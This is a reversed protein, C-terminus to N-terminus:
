RQDSSRLKASIIFFVFAAHAFEQSLGSVSIGIRIVEETKGIDAHGRYEGTVKVLLDLAISGSDDEILHLALESHGARATREGLLIAVVGIGVGYKATDVIDKGLQALSPHIADDM